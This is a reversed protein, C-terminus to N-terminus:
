LGFSTLIGGIERAVDKRGAQSVTTLVYSRGAAPVVVVSHVSGRRERVYSYFHAQRGAITATRSTVERFDPIQRDLKAGLKRALQDLPDRVPGRQRVIVLGRGDTRMLAARASGVRGALEAASLPRWGRPYDVHFRDQAATGQATLTKSDRAGPTAVVAIVAALASLAALTAAVVLTKRSRRRRRPPASPSQPATM